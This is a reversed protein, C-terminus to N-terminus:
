LGKVSQVFWLSLWNTGRFSLHSPLGPRRMGGAVIAKWRNYWATFWWRRKQRTTERLSAAATMQLKWITAQFLVDLRPSLLRLIIFATRRPNRHLSHLHFSVLLFFHIATNIVCINRSHGSTRMPPGIFHPALNPDRRRCVILIHCM